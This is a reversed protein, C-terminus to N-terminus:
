KDTSKNKVSYVKCNSYTLHTKGNKEFFLSTPDWKAIANLFRPVVTASAPSFNKSEHTTGTM